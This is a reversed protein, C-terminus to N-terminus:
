WGPSPLACRSKFTTWIATEPEEEWCLPASHFVLKRDEWWKTQCIHALVGTIAWLARAVHLRGEGPFLMSYFWQAYSFIEFNEPFLASLLWLFSKWTFLFFFRLLDDKKRGEEWIQSTLPPLHCLFSKLDIFTVLSSFHWCIVISEAVISCHFPSSISFNKWFGCSFFLIFLDFGPSCPCTVHFNSSFFGIPM